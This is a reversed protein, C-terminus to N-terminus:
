PFSTLTASVQVCDDLHNLWALSKIMLIIFIGSSTTYVLPRLLLHHMDKESATHYLYGISSTLPFELEPFIEDNRPNPLWSRAWSLFVLLELAYKVHTIYHSLSTFHNPPTQILFSPYHYLSGVSAWYLLRRIKHGKNTSSCCVFFCWSGTLMSASCIIFGNLIKLDDKNTM